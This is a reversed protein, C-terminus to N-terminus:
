EDNRVNWRRAIEKAVQDADDKCASSDDTFLCPMLQRVESDTCVRATLGRSKLAERYTAQAKRSAVVEDQLEGLRQIHVVGAIKSAAHEERILKLASAELAGEWCLLSSFVIRAVPAKEMIEQLVQERRVFEDNRAQNEAEQREREERKLCEERQSQLQAADWSDRVARVDEKSPCAQVVLAVVYFAVM